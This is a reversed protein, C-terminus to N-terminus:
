LRALFALHFNFGHNLVEISLTPRLDSYLPTMALELMWMIWSGYSDRAFEAHINRGTCQFANLFLGTQLLILCHFVSDDNFFTGFTKTSINGIKWPTNGDTFCSGFYNLKNLLCYLKVNLPELRM